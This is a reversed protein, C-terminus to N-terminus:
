YSRKETNRVTAVALGLGSLQVLLSFHHLVNRTPLDTFTHVVSAFPNRTWHM